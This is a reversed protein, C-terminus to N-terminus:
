RRSATDPPAPAASSRPGPRGSSWTPSSSASRFTSPRLLLGDVIRDLEAFDTGENHIRDFYRRLRDDTEYQRLRARDRRPITTPSSASTASPWSPSPRDPLDPRPQRLVEGPQGPDDGETYLVTVLCHIPLTALCDYVPYTADAAATSRSIESWKFEKDAPWGAEEPAPRSVTRVEAWHDARIAVGASPSSETRVPSAPSTSSSCTCAPPIPFPGGTKM